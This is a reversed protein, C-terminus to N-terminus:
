DIVSATLIYDADGSAFPLVARQYTLRMGETMGFGVIADITEAVAPTDPTVAAFVDDLWSGYEAAPLVRFPEGITIFGIRSAYARIGSGVADALYLDSGHERRMIAFRGNFMNDLVGQAHRPTSAQTVADLAPRWRHAFFSAELPLVHRAFKPRQARQELIDSVTRLAESRSCIMPREARSHRDRLVFRRMRSRVIHLYASALSKESATSSDFALITSSAHLVIEVDGRNCALPPVLAGDDDIFYHHSM